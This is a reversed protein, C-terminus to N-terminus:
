VSMTAIQHPANKCNMSRLFGVKLNMSSSSMSGLSGGVKMSSIIWWPWVIMAAASMSVTAVTARVWLSAAQEGMQSRIMDGLLSGMKILLNTEWRSELHPFLETGGISGDVILVYNLSLKMRMANTMTMLSMPMGIRMIRVNFGKEGSLM